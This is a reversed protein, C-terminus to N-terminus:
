RGANRNRAKGYAVVSCFHRLLRLGYLVVQLGPHRETELQVRFFESMTGPIDSGSVGQVSYHGAVFNAAEVRVGPAMCARKLFYQDAAIPFRRSYYGFQEHLSKKFLTGVSHQAVFALHGRRWSQGRAPRCVSMGNDVCAAVIDASTQEVARRFDSVATPELSDDAGCVLYYEGSALRVAKNMADYIGFDPESVWLGVVDGAAQLMDVTGDTSAADVVVWEFDRDTQARLSEILSQLVHAANYTVTIVSISTKM